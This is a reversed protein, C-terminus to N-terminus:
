FYIHLSAKSSTVSVEILPSYMQFITAYRVSQSQPVVDITLSYVTNATYENRIDAESETERIVYMAFFGVEEHLM